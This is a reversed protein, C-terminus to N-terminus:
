FGDHSQTETSIMKTMDTLKDGASTSPRAIRLTNESWEIFGHSQRGSDQGRSVQIEKWIIIRCRMDRRDRQYVALHQLTHNEVTQREPICRPATPYSEKGDVERAYLSTRRDRQYVVPHQLNHNEVTKGELMCRSTTPYSERGDIM